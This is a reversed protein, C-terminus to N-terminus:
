HPQSVGHEYIDSDKSRYNDAQNIEYHGLTSGTFNIIRIEQPLVNDPVTAGGDSQCQNAQDYEREAPKIRVATSISPSVLSQNYYIGDTQSIYQKTKKRVECAAGAELAPRVQVGPKDAHRQQHTRTQLRGKPGIYNARVDM